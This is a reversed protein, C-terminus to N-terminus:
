MSACLSKGEKVSDPDPMNFKKVMEQSCGRLKQVVPDKMFREGESRAYEEAESEKGKACLTDIKQKIAMGREQLAQMKEMGIDNMCQSAALMGGQMKMMQQQMKQPDIQGNGDQAQQMMQQIFHSEQAQAMSASLCLLILASFIRTMM